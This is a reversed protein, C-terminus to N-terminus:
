KGPEFPLLRAVKWNFTESLQDLDDLNFYGRIMDQDFAGPFKHEIGWAVLGYHHQALATTNIFMVGSNFKENQKTEGGIALIKPPAVSCSNM